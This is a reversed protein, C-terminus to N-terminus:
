RSGGSVRRLSGSRSILEAIDAEDGIAVGRAQAWKLVENAAQHFLDGSPIVVLEGDKRRCQLRRDVRGKTKSVEVLRMALIEDFRVSQHTPKMWFGYTTEFHTDDIVVRDTFRSPGILFAAVLSVIMLLFGLKRGVKQLFGSRCSVKWAYWDVMAGLIGGATQLLGDWWAFGYVAVGGQDTREYCGSILCVMALSAFLLTRRAAVSKM